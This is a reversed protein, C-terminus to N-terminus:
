HNSSTQDKGDCYIPTDLNQWSSLPMSRTKIKYAHTLWVCLSSFRLMELLWLGKCDVVDLRSGYWKQQPIFYMFCFTSIPQIEQHIVDFWWIGLITYEGEPRPVISVGWLDSINNTSLILKELFSSIGHSTGFEELFWRINWPIKWHNKKSTAIEECGLNPDECRPQSSPILRCDCAHLLDTGRLIFQILTLKVKKPPSLCPIAVMPSEASLIPLNSGVRIPISPNWWAFHASLVTRTPKLGHTPLKNVVFWFDVLMLWCSIPYLWSILRYVHISNEFISISLCNLPSINACLYTCVHIFLVYLALLVQYRNLGLIKWHTQLGSSPKRTM